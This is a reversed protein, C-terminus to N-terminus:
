KLLKKPRKRKKQVDTLVGPPGDPGCGPGPPKKEEVEEKEEEKVEEPKPSSAKLTELKLEKDIDMLEIDDKSADKVDDKVENEEKTEDKTEEEDLTDKYFKLPATAIKPSEPEDKKSNSTLRKRKKPEKKVATTSAFLSDMFGGSEVLMALISIFYFLYM